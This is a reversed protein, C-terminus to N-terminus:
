SYHAKAILPYWCKPQVQYNTELVQVQVQVQSRLVQVQVQQKLVQLM